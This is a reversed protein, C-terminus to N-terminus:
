KQLNFSIFIILFNERAKRKNERKENLPKECVPGPPTPLLSPLELKTM